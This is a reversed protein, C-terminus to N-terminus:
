RGETAQAVQWPKQVVAANLRALKPEAAMIAELEALRVPPGHGLRDALARALELDAPTSLPIGGGM